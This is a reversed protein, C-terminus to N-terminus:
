DIRGPQRHKYPPKEAGNQSELENEFLKFIHAFEHGQVATLARTM